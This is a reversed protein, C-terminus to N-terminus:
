PKIRHRHIVDLQMVLNALILLTGGIMLNMTLHDVGFLISVLSAFLSETMLILGAATASTHKQSIIQLGQGIYTIVMAIIALPPLGLLWNIHPLTAQETTVVTLMGLVSEVTAILIIIIWPSSARNAQKGFLVLQGAWFAAGVLSLLDGAQFTLNFPNINSIVGTGIVAIVLAIWEKREPAQHYGAWIIFPAIVVYMSTLFANKAPTTFMLAATQFYYGFFSIVGITIGIKLDQKTMQRIAPRFFLVGTLVTFLGRLMNIMGSHMGADIAMQDLLYSSGWAFAVIWLYLQARRTSM